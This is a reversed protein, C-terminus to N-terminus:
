EALSLLTTCIIKLKKQLEDDDFKDFNRFKYTEDLKIVSFAISHDLVGHLERSDLDISFNIDM